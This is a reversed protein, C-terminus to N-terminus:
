NLFLNTTGGAVKRMRGSGPDYKTYSQKPVDSSRNKDKSSSQLFDPTSGVPESVQNKFLDAIGGSGSSEKKSSSEQTGQDFMNLVGRKDKSGFKKWNELADPRINGQRDVYKSVATPNGFLDEQFFQGKTVYAMQDLYRALESADGYQSQYQQEFYEQPTSGTALIAKEVDPALRYEGTGPVYPSNLFKRLGTSEKAPTITELIGANALTELAEANRSNIAGRTMFGFIPNVAGVAATMMGEGTPILNFPGSALTGSSTINEYNGVDTPFLKSSLAAKYAGAPDMPDLLYQFTNAKGGGISPDTTFYGSPGIDKTKLQSGRTLNQAVPQTEVVEEDPTYVVVPGSPTDIVKRAM